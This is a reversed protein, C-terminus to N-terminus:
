ERLQPVFDLQRRFQLTEDVRQFPRADLFETRGPVRARPQGGCSRPQRVGESYPLGVQQAPGEPGSSPGSQILQELTLSRSQEPYFM